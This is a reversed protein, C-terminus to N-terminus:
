RGGWFDILWGMVTQIVFSGLIVLVNIGTQVRGALHSPFNTTLVAYSLSLPNMLFGIMTWLPLAMAAYGAALVTLVM